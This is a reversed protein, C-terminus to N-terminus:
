TARWPRPWWRSRSNLGVGTDGTAQFQMVGASIIATVEAAGVLEDLGLHPDRLPQPVLYLQDIGAPPVSLHKSVRRSFAPKSSSKVPKLKSPMDSCLDNWVIEALADHVVAGPGDRQQLAQVAANTRSRPGRM